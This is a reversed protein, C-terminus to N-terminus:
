LCIIQTHYPVYWKTNCAEFIGSEYKEVNESLLSFSNISFIFHAPPIDRSRREVGEKYRLSIKQRNHLTDIRPRRLGRKMRTLPVPQSM